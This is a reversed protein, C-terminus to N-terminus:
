TNDIQVSGTQATNHETATITCFGISTASTYTVTVVGSSNSSGAAPSITGCDGTGVFGVLDGSVPASTSSIM